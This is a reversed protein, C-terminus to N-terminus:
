NQSTLNVASIIVILTVVKSSICLNATHSLQVLTRHDCHSSWQLHPKIFNSWCWIRKVTSMSSKVYAEKFLVSLLCQSHDNSVIACCMWKQSIMIGEEVILLTGWWLDLNIPQATPNWLDVLVEIRLLQRPPVHHMFYEMYAIMACCM